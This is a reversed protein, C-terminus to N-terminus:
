NPRVSKDKILVSKEWEYTQRISETIDTYNASIIARLQDLKFGTVKTDFGKEQGNEWSVKPVIRQILALVEEVSLSMGSGVNLTINKVKLNHIKWFINAFDTSFIYDKKASGDGWVIIKENKLSKRIALNILGNVKSFHNLGFPNSLRIIFYEINHLEKYLEIYKEFAFKIIGYSSKLKYSEEEQFRKIHPDGYVTGGSSLYTIKKVGYKVMLDLLKISSILNSNIDRIIDNNSTAPVSTSIFHFVENIVNDSFVKKLNESDSFDCIINTVNVNTLLEHNAKSKGLM